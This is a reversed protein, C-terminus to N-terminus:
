RNPKNKATLLDNRVQQNWWFINQRFVTYRTRRYHTLGSFFAGGTIIYLPARKKLILGELLHM